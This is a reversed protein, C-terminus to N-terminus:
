IKLRIRTGESSSHIHVSGGKSSIRQFLSVLGMSTAKVEHQRQLSEDWGPIGTGDDQVDICIHGRSQTLIVTIRTAQSHRLANSLCEQTAKYLHLGVESAVPEPQGTREYDLEIGEKHAQLKLRQCLDTLAKHLTEHGAYTPNIAFRLEEMCRQLESELETTQPSGTRLSWLMLNIRSGVGDHIDNVIRERQENLLKVHRLERHTKKNHDQILLWMAMMVFVPLAIHTMYIPQLLLNAWLHVPSEPLGFPVVGSQLVYDHFALLSTIFWHAAIPLVRGFRRNRLAQFIVLAASIIYMCVALGTWYIDLSQESEPGALAYIIWGLNLYALGIFSIKKPVENQFVANTFMSVFYILMGTVAYLAMRWYYYSATPLESTLAVSILISWTLTTMGSYVYATSKSRLGIVLFFFGVISSLFNITTYLTQSLFLYNSFYRRLEQLDGAFMPAIFWGRLHGTQSVLIQTEQGANLLSKPVSILVPQYWNRLTQSDSAHLEYIIEGNISFVAGQVPQPILVAPLSAESLNAPLNISWLVHSLGWQSQKVFYPLNQTVSKGTDVKILSIQTIPVMKACATGGLFIALALVWFRGLQIL